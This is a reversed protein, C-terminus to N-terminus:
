YVYQIIDDAIGGYYGAIVGFLLAFPIVILTTVSGIVLGTRISKLSRYFV